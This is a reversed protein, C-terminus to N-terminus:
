PRAGATTTRPRPTSPRASRRAPRLGRGVVDPWALVRPAVYTGPRPGSRSLGHPRPCTTGDRGGRGIETGQGGGHAEARDGPRRQLVRSMLDPVNSGVWIGSLGSM